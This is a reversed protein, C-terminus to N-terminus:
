KLKSYDLTAWTIVWEFHTMLIKSHIFIGGNPSATKLLYKPHILFRFGYKRRNFYAQHAVIVFMCAEQLVCVKKLLLFRTWAGVEHIKCSILSTQPLLHPIMVRPYNAPVYTRRAPTRYYFHHLFMCFYILFYVDMFYPMCLSATYLFFFSKFCLTNISIM